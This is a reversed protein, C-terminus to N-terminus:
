LLRLGDLKLGFVLMQAGQEIQCFARANLTNWGFDL